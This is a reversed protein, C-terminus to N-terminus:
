SRGLKMKNALTQKASKGESNSDEENSEFIEIRTQEALTNFEAEYDADEDEVSLAQNLKKNYWTGFGLDEWDPDDRLLEVSVEVEEGAEIGGVDVRVVADEEITNKSPLRQQDYNVDNSGIFPSGSFIPSRFEPKTCQAKFADWSMQYENVVSLSFEITTRIAKPQKIFGYLSIQSTISHMVGALVEIDGAPLEESVLGFFPALIDIPHPAEAWKLVAAKNNESDLLTTIGEITQKASLILAVDYVSRHIYWFGGTADELVIVNILTPYFREKSYVLM